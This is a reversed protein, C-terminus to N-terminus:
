IATERLGRPRRVHSAVVHAGADHPPEGFQRRPDAQGKANGSAQEGGRLFIEFHPDSYFRRWQPQLALAQALPRGNKVLVATTGSQLLVREWGPRVRSVTEYENWVRPPFPDCRGDLFGRVNRDQLALSCWSFDECFLNHAGPAAALRAVATKPLSVGSIAPVHALHIAIAIGGLVSASSLVIRSFPEELVVNVRAYKGFATSLRQAAMPAITLACIPLHRGALFALPATLAFLMGDRWRERPAAIGFYCCIAILPLVGAYLASDTLDSPQWEQISSRFSGSMVLVAYRPLGLLLPTACLALVCGATVVLNRRVRPTWGRDEIWTGITWAGVLVPAIAASAHLNAWLAVVPIALYLRADEMDLLLMLVSLALWGFVQARAGYSDLMAFGACAAAVTIAITSSGRRLSRYATLVIAGTAALATLLAIWPFLGRADAWAVATSFAWEQPYWRAGAATFTETGLHTPLHHSAIVYNGLWQQWALDGERGPDFWASVLMRVFFLIAAVYAIKM